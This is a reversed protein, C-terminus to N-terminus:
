FWRAEFSRRFLREHVFLCFTGNFLSFSPRLSPPFPPFVVWLEEFSKGFLGNIGTSALERRRKKTEIWFGFSSSPEEEQGRFVVRCTTSFYDM